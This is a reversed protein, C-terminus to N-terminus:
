RHVGCRGHGPCADGGGCTSRGGENVAAAPAESEIRAAFYRALADDLAPLRAGKESTLASQRPRRAALGLAASPEARVLRDDLGAMKAARRALDAWSLAGGNALHWIGSAQDILLDLSADVLDPVYTPSVIGDEAARFPHMAAMERLAITVFNFEDWPGFFASTRVVLARPHVDLVAREARLKTEGYVNLPRPADSEVYAGPKEGDFVLDSSFTLLPLRRQACAAALVSAGIVNDRECRDSESEALDVRVYGAANIVAWPEVDDLTDAVSDPLALDIERRSLLRVRLGRRACVRGFAQGLTGTAGVVALPPGSVAPCPGESGAARGWVVRGPRRWFGPTQLVPHELPRGASLDRALSALATERPQPGRIDYVGPEYFGREETVLCNWDFAGLLSWLTLARVDAGKARAELCAHWAETVWRLQEERTCGLHVEGLAAPIGYRNWARLLLDRHGVIGAPWAHVAHVDAYRHKENGGHSWDPYLEMREDLVRDSTLYYNLAIVSPPCAPFEALEEASLGNQVVFAYLPHEPQLLGALLDLSLWRRQNEFRAQYALLPTAFTEGADETQVLRAEPNVRRIEQMALSTGLCEGYLCRLFTSHERAHPYWHGYLGSFRATTLPENVPTWDTVWPYRESVARAFSALKRPFEPDHLATHSPGSGHHLLTVIPRINLERLKHLWRDSQEWGREEVHEWLVPQRLARIGLTAFRDLDDIRGDHGNRRNQDHYRDRVRNVTCEVGGWLELPNM